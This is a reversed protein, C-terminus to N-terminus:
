IVDKDLLEDLKKDLDELSVKPKATMEKPKEVMVEKQKKLQEKVKSAKMEEERSIEEATKLRKKIALFRVINNNLKLENTLKKLDAPLMDFEYTFYFGHRLQGIAYALKKRGLEETKTIQASNKKLLAKVESLIAQHQDEAIAGSVLLTLEYHQTQEKMNNELNGRNDINIIPPEQITLSM